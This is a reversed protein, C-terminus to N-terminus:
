LGLAANRLCGWHEEHDEGQHRRLVHGPAWVLSGPSLSGLKARQDQQERGGEAGEEGAKRGFM